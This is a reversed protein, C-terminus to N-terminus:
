STSGLSALVQAMDGLLKENPLIIRLTPRGSEDIELCQKLRNQMEVKAKETDANQTNPMLNGLLDFMSSFLNGSAIGIKERKEKLDMEIKEKSIKDEALEPEAGLLEELKSRLEDIGSVIDVENIKSNYDLSALALNKKSALTTLMKQEITEATVLIYVHVKNKQGMRHTRAIRQELVAPNWPLDINIVTNANQLNLGTSGANTTIFFTIKPDQKFSEVLKQRKKQPVQGDLRVFQMKRKKLLPEIIDLMTTWESFLVCKRDPELKIQDFLEELKDLKTSHTDGKKLVLYQSDANMRALLLSKQLRLMDMETIFPKALISSIIQKQAIDFEKQNETPPILIIQDRRSPLDKLVLNRTRRLLIPKLRERLQDLNKYGLVKGKDDAIKHSNYFRFSPGLHRQDIFEVISFLDDLRNEIPTGTLALAFKSQLEKIYKSTKAEWNKIRQAEDIIILDWKLNKMFMLDKLVQEYNCITFFTDNQYQATREQYAGQILLASRDSFKVIESKWQSKLSTPCIILVKKIGAYKALIESYGIGQITKGLGMDDALISRSAGLAFGIGDMQHPLLEVKLLTNRLPHKHTNARIEASLKQLKQRSLQFDIYEEADPYINITINNKELEKILMLLEHINNDFSQYNYKDLISKAKNPIKKPVGIKLSVSKGYHLYVSFHNRIYPKNQEAVSFKRKVKQTVNIIHKCTGLTNKKFDPCTCFSEGINWGRLAVRYSKGSESNTVTYDSWLELLNNSVIKMKEKKAREQRENLEFQILENESLSEVPIRAKPEKALGLYTKEELVFSLASGIHICPKQCSSCTLLLQNNRANNLQITATAGLIQFNFINDNLKVNSELNEIELAGGDILLQKGNEGLLKCATTFNLRSLKDKLTIETLSKRVM